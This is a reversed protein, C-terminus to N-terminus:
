REQEMPRPLSAPQVENGLLGQLVKFQDPNDPHWELRAREFWQTLVTDGSSNTEMRPETLPLGFLALSRGFHSLLPDRLGHAEWYRKFGGDPTQDCVTHRTQEFWLCGTRPADAQPERRWDIELQRLREDGLRGLLVDYPAAHKPHYEFRTREFWQTLYIHGMDRNIEYRAETTPFGFVALGGNSEWFQRFRGDVCQGTEPFCRPNSPTELAEPPQLGYGYSLITGRSGVALAHRPDTATVATLSSDASPVPDHSWIGDRYSLV